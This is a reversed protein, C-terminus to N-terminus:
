LHLGIGPNRGSKEFIGALVKQNSTHMAFLQLSMFSLLAPFEQKKMRKLSEKTKYIVDRHM